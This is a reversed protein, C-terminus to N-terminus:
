AEHEANVEMEDEEKFADSVDDFCRQRTRRVSRRADDDRATTIRTGQGRWRM